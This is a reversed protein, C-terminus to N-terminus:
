LLSIEYTLTCEFRMYKWWRTPSCRSIELCYSHFDFPLVANQGSFHYHRSGILFSTNVFPAQLYQYLARLLDRFFSYLQLEHIFNSCNIREVPQKLLPRSLHVWRCRKRKWIVCITFGENLITILHIVVATIYRLKRLIINSM